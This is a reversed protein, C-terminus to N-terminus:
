GFLRMQEGVVHGTPWIPDEKPKARPTSHVLQPGPAAPGNVLLEPTKETVPPAHKSRERELDKWVAEASEGVGGKEVLERAMATLLDDNADLTQLGEGSFKGEMM